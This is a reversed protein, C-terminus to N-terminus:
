GQGSINGGSVWNDLGSDETLWNVLGLVKAGHIKQNKMELLAKNADELPYEQYDPLIQAKAAM